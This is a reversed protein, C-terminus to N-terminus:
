QNINKSNICQAKTESPQLKRRDFVVENIRKLTRPSLNDKATYAPANLSSSNGSSIIIRSVDLTYSEEPDCAFLITGNANIPLTWTHTEGATFTYSMGNVLMSGSGYTGSDAVITVNVSNGPFDNPMTYLLNGYTPLWLCNTGDDQTGVYEYEWNAPGTLVIGEISGDGNQYDASAYFSNESVNTPFSVNADVTASYSYSNPHDNSSTPATFSDVLDSIGDLSVEDNPSYTVTTGLTTEDSWNNSDKTSLTTTVDFVPVMPELWDVEVQTIRPSQGYVYQNNSKTIGQIQIVDGANANTVVYRNWTNASASRIWGGVSFYGSTTTYIYVVVKANHINLDAPVTYSLYYSSGGYIYAYGNRNGYLGSSTWNEPLSSDLSGSSSISTFNLGSLFEDPYTQPTRKLNIRAVDATAGTDDTRTLTIYNDGQKLLGATLKYDGDPQSIRLTNTYANIQENIDFTSRNDVLELKLRQIPTSTAVGQALAPAWGAVLLLSCTIYHYVKRM